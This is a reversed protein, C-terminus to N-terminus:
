IPVVFFGAVNSGDSIEVLFDESSTTIYQVFVGGRWGTRRLTEGTTVPFRDGPFMMEVDLTDDPASNALRAM